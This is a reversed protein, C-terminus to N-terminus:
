KSDNLHENLYTKGIQKQEDTLGLLECFEDFEKRLGNTDFSVFEDHAAAIIGDEIDKRKTKVDIGASEFKVTNITRLKEQSGRFEFRIFYDDGNKKDELVSQLLREVHNDDHIDFDIIQKFYKKFPLSIYEHSGDNYFVMFGKDNDEGFNNPNSSGIYFINDAPQCRDHYHGIFVKFFPKFLQRTVPNAVTEKSNNLVGDVGIHTILIHKFEPNDNVQGLAKELYKLYTTEELFFPIYHVQFKDDLYDFGYDRYLDVGPEHEFVDLYSAESEYDVKDHNGPFMTVSISAEKFIQLIEKWANLAKLPQAKRSDFIDGSVIVQFIGNHQCYRILEEILRKKVPTNDVTLHLDTIQAFLPKKM